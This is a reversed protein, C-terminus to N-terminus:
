IPCPQARTVLITAFVVLSRPRDARGVFAHAQNGPTRTGDISPLCSGSTGLPDTSGTGRDRVSGVTTGTM